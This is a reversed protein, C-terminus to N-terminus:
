KPWGALVSTLRHCNIENQACWRPVDTSMYRVIFQGGRYMSVYAVADFEDSLHCQVHSQERVADVDTTMGTFREGDRPFKLNDTVHQDSWFPRRRREDEM